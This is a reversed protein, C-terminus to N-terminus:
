LWMQLPHKLMRSHAGVVLWLVVSSLEAGTGHRVKFDCAKPIGSQPRSCPHLSTAGDPFGM